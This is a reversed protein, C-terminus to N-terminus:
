IMRVMGPIYKRVISTGKFCINKNNPSLLIRLGRQQLKIALCIISMNSPAIDGDNQM